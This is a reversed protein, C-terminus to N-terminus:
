KTVAKVIKRMLEVSENAGVSYGDERGEVGEM